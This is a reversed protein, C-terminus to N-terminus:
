DLIRPAAKVRPFTETRQVKSDWVGKQFIALHQLHKCLFTLHMQKSSQFFYPSSSSYLENQLIQLCQETFYLRLFGEYKTRVTKAFMLGKLDTTEFIRSVLDAIFNGVTM